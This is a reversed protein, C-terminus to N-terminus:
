RYRNFFHIIKIKFFAVCKFHKTLNLQYMKTIYLTKIFGMLDKLIVQDQRIKQISESLQIVAHTLNTFQTWLTLENQHSRLTDLM